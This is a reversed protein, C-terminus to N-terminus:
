NEFPRPAKEPLTKPDTKDLWSKLGHWGQHDVMAKIYRYGDGYEPDRNNEIAYLIGSYLKLRAYQAAAYQCIGEQAWLPATEYAPYNEHILHHMLEHVATVRFAEDHLHDIIYITESSEEEPPQKKFLAALGRLHLLRTQRSYLGRVALSSPDSNRLNKSLEEMKQLNVLELKPIEQIPIGTWHELQRRANDFHRLAQQQDTVGWRKCDTCIIRNDPLTETYRAPRNCSFCTKCTEMCVECYDHGNITYGKEFREGCAKCRPLTKQYCAGFCVNKGDPTTRYSGRLPERCIACKPRMQDICSQSCYAGNDYNWYRGSLPKRCWTCRKGSALADTALLLLLSLLWPILTKSHYNM